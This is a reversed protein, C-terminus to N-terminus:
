QYLMLSYQRKCIKPLQHNFLQSSSTVRPLFLHDSRVSRYTLEIAEVLAPSTAIICCLISICYFGHAKIALITGVVGDVM